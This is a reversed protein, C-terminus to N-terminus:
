TVPAQVDCTCAVLVSSSFQKFSWLPASSTVSNSMLVHLFGFLLGPESRGMFELESLNSWPYEIGPVYGLAPAVTDLGHPEGCAPFKPLLPATAMLIAM